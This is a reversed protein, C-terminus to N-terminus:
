EYMSEAVLLLVVTVVHDCQPQLLLLLAGKSEGGLTQAQLEGLQAGLGTSTTDVAAPPPGTSTSPAAQAPTAGGQVLRQVQEFREDVSQGPTATNLAPKDSRLAALRQQFEEETTPQMAHHQLQELLEEACM